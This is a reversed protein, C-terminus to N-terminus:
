ILFLIPVRVSDTSCNSEASPEKPDDEPLEEINTKSLSIGPKTSSVSLGLDSIYM